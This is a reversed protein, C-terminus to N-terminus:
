SASNVRRLKPDNLPLKLFVECPVLRFNIARVYQEPDKYSADKEM